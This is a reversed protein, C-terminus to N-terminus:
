RKMDINFNNNGIITREIKSLYRLATVLEHFNEDKRIKEEARLVPKVIANMDPM